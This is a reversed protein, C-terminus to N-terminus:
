FKFSISLLSKSIIPFPTPIFLKLNFLAKFSNLYLADDFLVCWWIFCMMLYFVDDFLVCWWIFCMMLYLVDNFLACRLIFADDFLHM